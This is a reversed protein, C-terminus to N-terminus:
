KMLSEPGRLGSNKPPLPRQMVSTETAYRRIVNERAEAAERDPEDRIQPPASFREKNFASAGRGINIVPTNRAGDQYIFRLHRDHADAPVNPEAVRLILRVDPANQSSWLADFERPDVGQPFDKDRRSLIEIEQIGDSYLQSVLWSLGESGRSIDTAAYPDLLYVKRATTALPRIALDYLSNRTKGQSQAAKRTALLARLNEDIAALALPSPAEPAVVENIFKDVPPQDIRDSMPVVKLADMLRMLIQSDAESNILTALALRVQGWTEDSMAVVASDRIWNLVQASEFMDRQPRIWIDPDEGAVVVRM